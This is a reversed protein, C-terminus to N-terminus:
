DDCIFSLQTEGNVSAPTVYNRSVRTDHLHELRNYRFDFVRRRGVAINSPAGISSSRRVSSTSIVARVVVNM